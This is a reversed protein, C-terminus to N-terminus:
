HSEVFLSDLSKMMLIEKLDNKFVEGVLYVRVREQVERSLELVKKLVTDRVKEDKYATIVSDVKALNMVKERKQSSYVAGLSSQFTIKWLLNELRDITFM